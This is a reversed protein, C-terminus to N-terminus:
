IFVRSRRAIIRMAWCRARPSSETWRCPATSFTAALSASQTSLNYLMRKRALPLQGLWRALSGAQFLEPLSATFGGKVVNPPAKLVLDRLVDAIADIEDSYIPYAAADNASFKAIEAQTRGPGTLLIAAM